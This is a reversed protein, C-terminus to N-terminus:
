WDLPWPTYVSAGDRHLIWIDGNPASKLRYIWNSIPIQTEDLDEWYGEGYGYLPWTCYRAIGQHLLLDGFEGYRKIPCKAVWVFGSDDALIPPMLDDDRGSPEYWVGDENIRCLGKDTLAWINGDIGMDIPIDLVEQEDGYFGRCFEIFHGGGPLEGEYEIWNEGDYGGLGAVFYYYDYIPDSRATEILWKVWVTGSAEDVMWVDTQPESECLVEYHAEVAEKIGDFKTVSSAGGVFVPDRTGTGTAAHFWWNDASDRAMSTFPDWRTDTELFFREWTEENRLHYLYFGKTSETDQEGPEAYAWLGSSDAFLSEAFGRSWGEYDPDWIAIDSVSSWAGGSMQAIRQYDLTYSSEAFMVYVDNGHFAVAKATLPGVQPANLPVPTWDLGNFRYVGTEPDGMFIEGDDSVTFCPDRWTEPADLGSWMEGDWSYLRNRDLDQLHERPVQAHVRVKGAAEFVRMVHIEDFEPVSEWADDGYTWLGPHRDFLGLRTNAPWSWMVGDSSIFIESSVSDALYTWEGDSYQWLASYSDEWSPERFSIHACIGGSPIDCIGYALSYVANNTPLEMEEIEGSPSIRIIERSVEKWFFGTYEHYVSYQRDPAFAYVADDWESYIVRSFCNNARYGWDCDDGPYKEPWYPTWSAGDFCSFGGWETVYGHSGTHSEGLAAWINGSGDLCFDNVESSALGDSVGWKRISGSTLDLAVVGGRMTGMFLEDDRVLLTNVARYDAYTRWCEFGVDMRWTDHAIIDATGAHTIVIAWRYTGSPASEPIEITLLPRVGTSAGLPLYVGSAFPEASGNPFYFIDGSPLILEFYVDVTVADGENAFSLSVTTEDGWCLWDPSARLDLGISVAQAGLAEHGFAPVVPSALSLITFLFLHTLLFWTDNM